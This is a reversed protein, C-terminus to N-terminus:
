AIMCAATVTAAAPHAERRLAGDLLAYSAAASALATVEAGALPKGDPGSVTGYLDRERDIPDSGAGNTGGVTTREATEPAAAPRGSAAASSGDGEVAAGHAPDAAPTTLQGATAALWWAALLATLLLLILALAPTRM